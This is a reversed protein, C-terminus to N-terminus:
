IFCMLETRLLSTHTHVKYRVDTMLQVLTDQADKCYKDEGGLAYAEDIFLVGGRAADMAEQVKKKSQGVYEGTLDLASTEVIRHTALLGLANMLEAMKRAVTTKGALTFHYTISRIIGCFLWWFQEEEVARVCFLEFLISPVSGTGPRGLFIWNSLLEGVPRGQARKEALNLVLQQMKSKFDGLGELGDLISMPNEFHKREEDNYGDVDEITIRKTKSVPKGAQADRLRITQREKAKLITQALFCPFIHSCLESHTRAFVAFLRPAFRKLQAPTALITCHASSPYKRSWTDSSMQVFLHLCTERPVRSM